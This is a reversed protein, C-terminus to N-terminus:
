AEGYLELWRLRGGREMCSNPELVALSLRWHKSLKQIDLCPCMCVVYMCVYMDVLNAWIWWVVIASRAGAAVASVV